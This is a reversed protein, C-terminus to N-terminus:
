YGSYRQISISFPGNKTLGNLAFMPNLTYSTKCDVYTYSKDLDFYYEGAHEYGAEMQIINQTRQLFTQQSVSLMILLLMHETYTANFKGKEAKTADGNKAIITDKLKDKLTQSVGSVDTLDQLLLTIGAPTLYLMQKSIYEKSKNSNVLIITDLMPEAMVIVIKVLLSLPGAAAAMANVQESRLIPLLDLVMRFIYLDVFSIAQNQIENKSGVLLYETEAGKFMRDNGSSNSLSDLTAFGGSFRDSRYTGGALEFIDSYKYGSLTKGQDYTTRNPMNYVGYGYLLVSNYMEKPGSNLVNFANALIETAWSVVAGLFKIVAEFFKIVARIAKGVSGKGPTFNESLLRGSDVLDNLSSLILRSSVSMALDNHLYTAAVSADLNIDYLIDIGLLETVVDLLDSATTASEQSVESEKDLGTLLASMVSSFNSKVSDIEVPGYENFIKEKDWLGSFTKRNWESLKIIQERLASKEENVNNKFDDGFMENFATTMTNAITLYWEYSSTTCTDLVSGDSTKDEYKKLKVTLSEASEMVKSIENGLSELESKLASAKEKYERCANEVNQSEKKVQEKEYVDDYAEDEELSKEAENLTEIYKLAKEEFNQYASHYASLAPQYKEDYQSNIEHLSEIIKEIEKAVDIGTELVEMEREVEDLDLKERLDSLLTDLDIAETVVETAVSIESYELIQQKLVDTDALSFRGEASMNEMTVSKGLALVNDSLYKSYVSNIDSEQSVSLLGFREDLYSDYEALVSFASSDSIEKVMEIASQYRASEVLLLSVSLLPSMVLALMISIVGKTGNIYKRSFKRIKKTMRFINKKM